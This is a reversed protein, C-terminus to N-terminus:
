DRNQRRFSLWATLVAIAVGAAILWGGFPKTAFELGM